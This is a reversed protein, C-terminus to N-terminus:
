FELRDLSVGLARCVMWVKRIDFNQGHFIRWLAGVKLGTDLSLQRLSKKQTRRLADLDSLQMLANMTNVM